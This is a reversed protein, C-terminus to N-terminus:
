YVNMVIILLDFNYYVHSPLTKKMTADNFCNVGFLEDITNYKSSFKSKTVLCGLKTLM